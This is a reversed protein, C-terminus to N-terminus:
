NRFPVEFDVPRSVGFRNAGDGVAVAALRVAVVDHFSAAAVSTRETGDAMLYSFAAGAEFPGVLEQTGRWVAWRTAFFTSPALRYSLRGYGRVLAGPEPLGGPLNAAWGEIELYDGVAGGGPAGAATCVSEPGSGTAVPVPNWGDGYEFVDSYPASAAVGTFSDTLNPGTARDFVYLAARDPGTPACVVAQLLDFRLALSDPEAALLDTAGAGRLEGSMLDYTAQAVQEAGMQDDTREYFRSQGLLLTLLATAVVGGIVLAVLVEVLTFGGAGETGGASGARM